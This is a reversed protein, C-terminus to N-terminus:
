WGELGSTDPFSETDAPENPVPEGWPDGEPVPNGWGDDSTPSADSAPPPPTAAEYSPPPNSAPPTPAPDTTAPPTEPESYAPAPDSYSPAPASYTPDPASEQYAPASSEYSSGGYGYDVAAGGVNDNAKNDVWFGYGMSALTNEGFAKADSVTRFRGIRVRHYTGPLEPTPNEVEAVYAPFGNEALKEMLRAAQRRSKFVSVQVVYRGRDSFGAPGAYGRESPTFTSSVGPHEQINQLDPEEMLMGTTDTEPLGAPPVEEVVAPPPEDKKCGILATAFSIAALTKVM